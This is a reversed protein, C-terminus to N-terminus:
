NWTAIDYITAIVSYKAVVSSRLPSALAKMRNYNAIIRNLWKFRLPTLHNCKSTDPVM